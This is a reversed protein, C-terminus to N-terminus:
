LGYWLLEEQCRLSKKKVANLKNKGQFKDKSHAIYELVADARMSHFNM